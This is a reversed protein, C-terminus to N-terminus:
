SPAEVAQGFDSAPQLIKARVRRPLAGDFIPIFQGGLRNVAGRKVLTCIWRSQSQAPRPKHHIRFFPICVLPICGAWNVLWSWPPAPSPAFQLKQKTDQGTSLATGGNYGGACWHM